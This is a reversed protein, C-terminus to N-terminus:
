KAMLEGETSIGEPLDGAYVHDMKEVKYKIPLKAYNLLKPKLSKFPLREKTRPCIIYGPQYNLKYNVKPAHISLEGLHYWIM